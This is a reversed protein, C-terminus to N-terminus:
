IVLTVNSSKTNLSPTSFNGNKAFWSYVREYFSTQIQSQNQNHLNLNFNTFHSLEDIFQRDYTCSTITSIIGSSTDYDCPKKIASYDSQTTSDIQCTTCTSSTFSTSNSDSFYGHTDYDRSIQKNTTILFDSSRRGKQGNSSVKNNLGSKNSPITDIIFYYNYYIHFSLLALLTSGCIIVLIIQKFRIQNQEFSFDNILAYFVSSKVISQYFWFYACLIHTLIISATFAFMKANTYNVNNCIRLNKTSLNRLFNEDFDITMKWSHYLAGLFSSFKGSTDNRPDFKKILEYIYIILFMLFEIFLCSIALLRGTLDDLALYVMLITLSRSIFLFYRFIFSFVCGISNSIKAREINVNTIIGSLSFYIGFFLMLYFDSSNLPIIMFTGIQIFVYIAIFCLPLDVFYQWIQIIENFFDESQGYFPVTLCCVSILNSAQNNDQRFRKIYWLVSLLISSSVFLCVFVATLIQNLAILRWLFLGICIKSLFNLVQVIILGIRIM